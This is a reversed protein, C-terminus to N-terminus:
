KYVPIGNYTENATSNSNFKQEIFQRYEANPNKLLYRYVEIVRAVTVKKGTYNLATERCAKEFIAPNANEDQALMLVEEEEVRTMYKNVTHYSKVFDGRYALWRDDPNPATVESVGNKAADFMLDLVDKKRSSVDNSGAQKNYNTNETTNELLAPDIESESHVIEGESPVIQGQTTVNTSGDKKHKSLAEYGDLFYGLSQLDDQIKNINVRYQLVKDWKFNPNNREDLYNMEILEQIRRRITKPSLDLMLEDKLKESSKYIWGNRLEMKSTEDRSLEEKIFEDFDNTRETWYLFQNLILATIHGGTLKVLEEKIVVRKLKKPKM